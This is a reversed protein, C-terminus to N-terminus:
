KTVCKNYQPINNKLCTEDIVEIILHIKTDKRRYLICTDKLFNYTRREIKTQFGRLLIAGLHAYIYVTYIIICLLLSYKDIFKIKFYM